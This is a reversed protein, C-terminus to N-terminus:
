LELMDEVVSVYGVLWCIAEPSKRAGVTRDFARSEAGVVYDVFRVLSFWGTLILPHNTCQYLGSGGELQLNLIHGDLSM